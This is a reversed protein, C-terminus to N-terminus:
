HEQTLDHCVLVSWNLQDRLVIFYALLTRDKWVSRVGGLQNGQLLDTHTAGKQKGLAILWREGLQCAEIEDVFRMPTGTKVTPNPQCEAQSM